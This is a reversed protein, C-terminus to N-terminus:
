KGLFLYRESSRRRGAILAIRGEMKWAQSAAAQLLEELGAPNAGVIEKIKKGDKYAIFTPMVRIGVERSIQEQEGVDVKYFEVNNFQELKSVRELIPSM